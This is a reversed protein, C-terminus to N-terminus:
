PDPPLGLCCPHPQVWRHRLGSPSGRPGRALVQAEYAEVMEVPGVVIWEAYGSSGVRVAYLIERLPVARGDVTVSRTPDLGAIADRRSAFRGSFYIASTGPGRWRDGRVPLMHIGFLRGADPRQRRYAGTEVLRYALTRFTPADSAAMLGAERRLAVTDTAMIRTMCDSDMTALVGEVSQETLIGRFRSVFGDEFYADFTLSDTVGDLRALELVAANAGDEIPGARSELVGTLSGEVSWLVLTRGYAQRGAGLERERLDTFAGLPRAISSSDVVVPDLPLPWPAPEDCWPTFPAGGSGLEPMPPDVRPPRISPPDGAVAGLAYFRIDPTVFSPPSLKLTLTFAALGIVGAAVAGWPPTEGATGKGPRPAVGAIGLAAAAPWIVVVPVDVWAIWLGGRVAALFVWGLGGAIGLWLAKRFRPGGDLIPALALAYLTVFIGLLPTWIALAILNQEPREVPLDDLVFWLLTLMAAFLVALGGAALARTVHRRSM